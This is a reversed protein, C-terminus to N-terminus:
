SGIARPPHPLGKVTDEAATDEVRGQKISRASGLGLGAMPQPPMFLVKRVRCSAGPLVQLPVAEVDSERIRAGRTAV